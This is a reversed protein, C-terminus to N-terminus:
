LSLRLWGGSPPALMARLLTTGDALLGAKSNPVVDLIWRERRRRRKSLGRSAEVTQMVCVPQEEVLQISSLSSLPQMELPSSILCLPSFGRSSRTRCRVRVPVIAQRLTSTEFARFSRSSALSREIRRLSSLQDDCRMGALSQLHIAVIGVSSDSM